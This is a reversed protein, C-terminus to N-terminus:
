FSWRVCYGAKVAGLVLAPYRLDNGGAFALIEEGNGPGLNETLWQALGNIANAFSKYSIERYGADYAMPNVPYEAYIADPKVTAYHDILHPILQTRPDLDSQNSAGM